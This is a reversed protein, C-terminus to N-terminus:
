PQRARLKAALELASANGTTTGIEELIGAAEAFRGTQTAVAMLAVMLRPDMRREAAQLVVQYAVEPKGAALLADAHAIAVESDYRRRDALRSLAAIAEDHRGARSLAAGHAVGLSGDWPRAATAKALWPVADAAKGQRLLLLGYAGQLEPEDPDRKTAEVLDALAGTADGAVLRAQSRGAWTLGTRPYGAVLGDWTSPGGAASQVAILTRLGKADLTGAKLARAFLQVRLAGTDTPDIQLARTSSTLAADGEGAALQLEALAAHVRSDQGAKRAALDLTARATTPDLVAATLYADPHDPVAAMAKRSVELAPPVDGQALHARALGLWAEALSADLRTARAYADIAAPFDQRATHIAGMGMHSRAHDPDLRLAREYAQRAQDASPLARGLLYHADPSTPSADVRGKAALVARDTLGLTLQVDIWREQAALDGPAARAESAAAKLASEVDGAYMFTESLPAARATGVLVVALWLMRKCWSIPVAM